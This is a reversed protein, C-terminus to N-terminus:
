QGHLAEVRDSVWDLVTFLVELHHPNLSFSEADGADPPPHFHTRPATTKPHRDWRCQYPDAAAERAEVYHISYEDTVFWRVDLRAVLINTPYANPDLQLRLLRPSISSPDFQWDDVLPQDVARQALTRLTAADLRGAPKPGKEPSLDDSM